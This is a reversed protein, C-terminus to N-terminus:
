LQALAESIRDRLKEESSRLSVLDGIKDKLHDIEATQISHKHKEKDYHERVTHLEKEKIRM